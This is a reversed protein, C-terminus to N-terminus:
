GGASGGSIMLRDADACGIAVLHRAGKVCDEVDIFAGGATSGTAIPGGM